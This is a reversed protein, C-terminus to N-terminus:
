KFMIVFYQSSKKQIKEDHWEVEYSVYLNNQQDFVFDTVTLDLTFTNTLKYEKQELNYIAFESYEYSDTDVAIMTSYDSNFVPYGNYELFECSSKDIIQYSSWEYGNKCILYSNITEFTGLYNYTEIEEDYEPYNDKYILVKNNLCRIKIVSDIKKIHREKQLNNYKNFIFEFKNKSIKQISMFDKVPIQKVIISDNLHERVFEDTKFLDEINEIFYENEEPINSVNKDQSLYAGFVYVTDKQALVSLWEGKLIKGEDEIEQYIGTSSVVNLSVSHSFKGIINGNPSDRYNLGNEADVYRIDKDLNKEQAISDKLTSQQVGKKEQRGKNNGCSFCFIITIILYLLQKM